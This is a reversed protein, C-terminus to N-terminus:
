SELEKQVEEETTLSAAKKAAAEVANVKDMDLKGEAIERLAVVTPKDNGADVLAQAGNAIQRARKSAVLVLEFRNDINNLCDQVTVRAM